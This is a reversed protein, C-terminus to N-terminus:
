LVLDKLDIKEIKDSKRRSITFKILRKQPGPVSGKILIYDNRVIGYHPFGSSKNINDDKTNSIKLILKNLETRKHYGTQGARPVTYFVRAPGWAGLVGVHRWKQTSKKGMYKVGFRKMPGQIGKGKTVASVDIYMGEKFVDKIHIDKGIISEAYSLQDQISEKGIGIEIIEPKKKPLGAEYPHTFGLVRIEVIKDLNNKIMELNKNYNDNKIKKHTKNFYKNDIKKIADLFVKKGSVDSTYARIGFITLPPTEIITIPVSIEQGKTTSNSNDIIFGHIMGVKYGYFGLLDSKNLNNWNIRVNETRSRKRPRYAMSGRRPRRQKAM